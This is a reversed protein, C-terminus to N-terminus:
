CDITAPDPDIALLQKIARATKDEISRQGTLSVFVTNSLRESYSKHSLLIENWQQEDVLFKKWDMSDYWEPFMHSTLLDLAHSPVDGYDIHAGGQRIMPGPWKRRKVVVVDGRWILHKGPKIPDVWAGVLCAMTLNVPLEPSFNHYAIYTEKDPDHDFSSNVPWGSTRTAFMNETGYVGRLDVSITEHKELVVVNLKEAKTFEKLQRHTVALNGMALLTDPHDDGLLQKQKELVVVQEEAKMLEEPHRYTVALNGMALLTDPHDDGLLQKQKELVVVELEEAKTFEEL